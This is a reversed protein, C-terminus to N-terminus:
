WSERWSQFRPRLRATIMTIRDSRILDQPWDQCDQQDYLLKPRNLFKRRDIRNIALDTIMADSGLLTRCIADLRAELDHDPDVKSLVLVLSQQSTSAIEWSRYCDTARQWDHCDHQDYYFKPRNLFNRRDAVFPWDHREYCIARCHSGLMLYIFWLWSSLVYM